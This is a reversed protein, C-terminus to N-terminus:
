TKMEQVFRRQALFVERAEVVFLPNGTLPEAAFVDVIHFPLAKM